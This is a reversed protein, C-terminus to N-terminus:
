VATLELVVKGFISMGQLLVEMPYIAPQLLQRYALKFTDLFYPGKPVLKVLDSISSKLYFDDDVGGPLGQGNGM